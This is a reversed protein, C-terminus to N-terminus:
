GEITEGGTKGNREIDAGKERVMLDMVLNRTKHTHLTPTRDRPPGAQFEVIKQLGVGRTELLIPGGQIM